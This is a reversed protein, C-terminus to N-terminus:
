SRLRRLRILWITGGSLGNVTGTKLREVQQFFGPDLKRGVSWPTDFAYVPVRGLTLPQDSSRPFRMTFGYRYGARLAEDIVRRDCRGFPYSIRDVEQGTLDQLVKRSNELEQKLESITCSTLDRHTTGHSGFVVGLAALKRVADRDLHPTARLRYSYDWRNVKGLLGTPMFVIPRFSCREMLAPLIQSLHQYGDDFSVIVGRGRGAKVGDYPSLFQRNSARLTQLLREFRCPSYNTVGYTFGELLKHFVLTTPHNCSSETM